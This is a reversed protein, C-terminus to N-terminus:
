SNKRSAAQATPKRGVPLAVVRRKNALYIGTPIGAKDVMEASTLFPRAAIIRQAEADGIYALTKLEVASARNIDIRVPVPASAARAAPLAGHSLTGGHPSVPPLPVAASAPAAASPVAGAASALACAAVAAAVTARSRLTAISM